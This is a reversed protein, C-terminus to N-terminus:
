QSALQSNKLLVMARFYKAIEGLQHEEVTVRAGVLATIMKLQRLLLLRETANLKEAKLEHARLQRGLGAIRKKTAEELAGILTTSTRVQSLIAPASETAYM